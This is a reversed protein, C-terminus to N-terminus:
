NSRDLVLDILGNLEAKAPSEPLVSLAKRARSGIEAAQMKALEVAGSEFMRQMMQKAPDDDALVQAPAGTNVAGNGNGHAEAVVVGRGQAVDLGTPKGLEEANGIVDLVDDVLQFAMGLNYGYVRMAEITEDDADASAAGM